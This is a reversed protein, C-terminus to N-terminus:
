FGYFILGQLRLTLTEFNLAKALSGELVRPDEIHSSTRSIRAQDSGRWVTSPLIMCSRIYVVSSCNIHNQYRFDHLIKEDVYHYTGPPIHPHGPLDALTAGAGVPAGPTASLQLEQEESIRYPEGLPDM